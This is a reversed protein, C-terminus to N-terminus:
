DPPLRGKLDLKSFMNAGSLEDLLEDIIPIPLTTLVTLANLRRYEICMRGQRDKKRVLIVPQPLPATATNFLEMRSCKM